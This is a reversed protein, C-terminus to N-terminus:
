VCEYTGRVLGTRQQPWLSEFAVIDAATERETSCGGQGLRKASYSMQVLLGCTTLSQVICPLCAHVAPAWWTRALVAASGTHKSWHKGTDDGERWSPEASIWAQHIYPLAVQAHHRRRKINSNDPQQQM